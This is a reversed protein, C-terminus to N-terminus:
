RRLLTLRRYPLRRVTRGTSLDVVHTRREGHDGVDVYVRRGGPAWVLANSGAFRRWRPKGTFDYAAVGMPPRGQEAYWRRALLLRGAVDFTQAEPDITRSTWTRTDVLRLGHPIPQARSPKDSAPLDEGSVALTGAGLWHASRAFSETPGGKAAARPELLDHYAVSRSRLDVEAVLERDAAVVFARNGRRDVALAPHRVRGRGDDGRGQGAEIRDLRVSRVRGGITVHVLRAPGLRTPSPPALLVLGRRVEDSDLALGRWRIRRVVRRERPDIVVATQETWPWGTMVLLRRPGVWQMPGAGGYRGPYPSPLSVSGLSRWRRVDFMLLRSRAEDGVALYRGSPSFEYDSVFRNPAPLGRSVPRLSSSELRILQGRADVGILPAFGTAPAAGGAVVLVAVM